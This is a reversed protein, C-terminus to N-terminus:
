QKFASRIRSFLGEQPSTVEEGRMAAFQALLEAEEASLRTPVEVQVESVLDGRRGSRLSPVGLGRLRLLTGHQTGHPVDLKMPGDLTDVDVTTGLTAQVISIRLAHWLEDGRRELTGHPAVRVAVYLDGAPGGRPGAPGRGALRLRQGDDIGQPVEVDISSTGEVRGAGRCTDCPNPIAQGTGGCVTCPAATMLQGLLSRRVQRVEGTGDCTGCRDPHTGPACGSGGCRDCDIPMRLSLTKRAGFVVEDLTLDLVTEADPGTMPGASGRTRTGSGFVDNSFFADFLDNLGFQGAGFPSGGAGASAGEPGFMDYRRRREPDRLTEYAENLEKFREVAHPDDRNADPHHQRALARFAKKIEDETAHPSVGLVEYYSRESNM